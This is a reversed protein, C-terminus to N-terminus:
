TKELRLKSTISYLIIIPLSSKCARFESINIEKSLKSVQYGLVQCVIYYELMSAKFM